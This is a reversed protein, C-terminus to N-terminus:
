TRKTNLFYFCSRVSEPGVVVFTISLLPTSLGEEIFLVIQPSFALRFHAKLHRRSISLFLKNMKPLM